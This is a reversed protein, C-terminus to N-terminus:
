RGLATLSLSPLMHRCLRINGSPATVDVFCHDRQSQHQLELAHRAQRLSHHRDWLLFVALGILAIVGLLAATDFRRDAEATHIKREPSHDLPSLM